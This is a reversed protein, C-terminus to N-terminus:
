RAHSAAGEPRSKNESLQPGPAPPIKQSAIKGFLGPDALRYTRPTKEVSQVALQTYSAEDLVQDTKATNAAWNSFDPQSVVHTDFMMDPFGDGSFHSALGRYTGVHDGRLNLRTVMGNMTYIMGGLQPIFFATMVSGSTLEFRLPAGIPVTLSNVTAIRQDPYIFLWKWDLSVAQIRIPLGTGEVPKGPDLDHSGIWAVGGLLIVTLAPISWVVLEAAGSYAFDPRYRAKGNSSRFWYAFALVAISTPVIIALMIIVSDILITQQAAAIPGKPDFINM